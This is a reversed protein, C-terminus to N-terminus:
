RPPRLQARESLSMASTDHSDSMKVDYADSEREDDASDRTFEEADDDIIACRTRRAASMM